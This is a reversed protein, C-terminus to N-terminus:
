PGFRGSRILRRVAEGVRVVGLSGAVVFAPMATFRYRSEHFCILVTALTGAALSVLFTSEMRRRERWIASLGFPAFLLALGVGPLFGWDADVPYLFLALKRSELWLMQGLGRARIGALAERVYITSKRGEPATLVEPHRGVVDRLEASEPWGGHSSGRATANNGVWFAIGFQSSLGFSGISARNRLAWALSPLTAFAVLTIWAAVRRRDGRSLLLGLGLALPLMPAPHPRALLSAGLLLGSLAAKFPLRWPLALAALAFIALPVSLSEALWWEAPDTARRLVDPWLVWALGSIWGAAAGFAARTSYFLAGAAFADLIGLTRAVTDPKRGAARYVLSGVFPLGPTRYATPQGIPAHLRPDDVGSTYGLGSALRFAQLEYEVADARLVVASADSPLGPWRALFALAAILLPQLLPRRPTPDPSGLSV